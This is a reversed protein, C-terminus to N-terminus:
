KAMKLFSFLSSCTLSYKINTTFFYHTLNITDPCLTMKKELFSCIPSEKSNPSLFNSLCIKVNRFRLFYLAFIHIFPM